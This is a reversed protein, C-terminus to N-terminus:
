RALADYGLFLGFSAAFLLGGVASDMLALGLKGEIVFATFQRKELEIVKIKQYLWAVASLIILQVCPVVLGVGLYAVSGGLVILVAGVFAMGIIVPSKVYRKLGAYTVKWFFFSAPLAFVSILMLATNYRPTM